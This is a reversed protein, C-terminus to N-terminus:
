ALARDGHEVFVKENGVCAAPLEECFHESSTDCVRWVVAGAFGAAAAAAPQAGLVEALAVAEARLRALTAADFDTKDPAYTIAVRDAPYAANRGLIVIRHDGLNIRQVSQDPTCCIWKGDGLAVLLLRHHWHFGNVDNFIDMLVQREPVDLTPM